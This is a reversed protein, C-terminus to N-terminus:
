FLMGSSSRHRLVGQQTSAPHLWVCLAHPRSLLSGSQAFGRAAENGTETGLAEARKAFRTDLVPAFGSAGYPRSYSPCLSRRRPRAPTLPARAERGRPPSPDRKRVAREEAGPPVASGPAAARPEVEERGEPPAAAGQLHHRAAWGAKGRPSEFTFLCYPRGAM